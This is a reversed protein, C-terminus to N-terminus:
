LAESEQRLAILETHQPLEEIWELLEGIYADIDIREIQGPLELEGDVVAKLTNRIQNEADKLCQQSRNPELKCEDRFDNYEDCFVCRFDVVSQLLLRPIEEVLKKAQANM